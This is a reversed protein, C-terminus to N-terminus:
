ELKKVRINRYHVESEPDHAQFAFTGKSLARELEKGSHKGEPETYDVVTKGNVKIQINKGRVIIEQTFWESDQAPSDNMVDDIGYLSGTRRPDGHSNNVQAEYGAQPWGSEQFATHFYIGSNAKPKTQVEAKFHFNVFPAHEGIYFMHSRDGHCIIVGEEIRWSDKNENIKWDDFSTGDWLSVFGEEDDKTGEQGAVWTSCFLLYVSAMLIQLCCRNM